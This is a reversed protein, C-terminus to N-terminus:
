QTKKTTERISARTVLVVPKQQIPKVVKKPKRVIPEKAKRKKKEVQM